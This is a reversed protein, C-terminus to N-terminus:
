SFMAVGAQAMKAVDEGTLGWDRSKINGTMRGRSSSTGGLGAAPFLISALMGLREVPLRRIQDELAILNNAGSDRAELASKALDVGQAQQGLAAQDLAQVTRGTESGAGYLSKAADFQRGQGAEYLQALVPLQANTIGEAQAKLHAGSLDRGAGAFQAGTRAMVDSSVRSLMDQIYPNNDLNLKEGSAYPMLQDTLRKYADSVTGSQSPAGLFRNAVEGIQGAYPNGAGARERLQNYATIENPTMTSAAPLQQQVQGILDQLAPIAPGWPDSQTSSSQDVTQKKNGSKFSV